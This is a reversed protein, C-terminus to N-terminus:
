TTCPHSVRQSLAERGKDTIEYQISTYQDYENVRSEVLGATELEGAAVHRAYSTWGDLYFDEAELMLRHLDNLQM